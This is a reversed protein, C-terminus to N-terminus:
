RSEGGGRVNTSRAQEIAAALDQGDAVLEYAVLQALRESKSVRQKLLEVFRRFRGDAAVLADKRAEPAVNPVHALWLKVFVVFGETHLQQDRQSRELARGLRDLRRMILTKDSTDDLYQRVAAEVAASETMRATACHGALRQALDAPVYPTIRKRASRNPNRTM